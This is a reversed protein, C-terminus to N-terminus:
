VLRVLGPGPPAIFTTAATREPFHTRYHALWREPFDAADDAEVLAWVSGGFGAGFSSSALAGHERASKALAVTEPVQNRLLLEADHQSAGSLAGLLSSDRRRFADLAELVRRDERLFQDLRAELGPEAEAHQRLRTRLRAAATPASTVAEFLSGAPEETANWIDLLRTAKRSLRNYQEMAPGTKQAAVGSSTVVFTSDRPLRAAGVRRIPVFRWASVERPEGCVIAVHDESGGHTGVGADGALSGFSLGNEFCAYYGAVDAASRINDGWERRDRLNGIHVLANVIGVVLASSSSMGAASPLDSAFAIDSGLSAGPFNRTLRRIIVRAYRRWGGSAIELPAAAAASTEGAALDLSETRGVDLLRVIGHERPAALVIFGRPLTAVLSHGGCYDTHKGFVELRGPVWWAHEFSRNSFAEFGCIVEHLLPRKRAAEAADIGSNALRAALTDANV